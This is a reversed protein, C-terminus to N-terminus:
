NFQGEGEIITLVRNSITMVTTLPFNASIFEYLLKKVFASLSIHNLHLSVFCCLLQWTQYEDIDKSEHIKERRIQRQSDAARM